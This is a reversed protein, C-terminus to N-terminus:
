GGNGSAQGALQAPPAPAPTPNVTEGPRVKQVGEVIVREGGSLGNTVIFDQAVQRGLAVPQQQVKNDPGVVLVYSGNKETQVAQVPVLPREKPQARRVEANVYAGPLLLRDPNAFDAYVSVTGTQPDVENNLFAITGTQKYKSGDPLELNVVLSKAIQGQTSGTKQEVSVIIRDAVSFVVRIPDLENITALSPTTPTVLNGKTLTITGIRGDIPSRITCYSLNLAAQALNAEASLVAAHDQDRTAQAKDLNAQTEVGKPVLQAARDYALQSQRLAAQASALQAQAAQVAAQYQTKQLQFLVDGAKVESGQQVPVDEIFATVRPVVQVSQIATVRGVFSNSPAVNKIQVPAVIVAPPPPAPAAAARVPGHALLLGIMAVVPM